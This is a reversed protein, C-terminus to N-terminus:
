IDFVLADGGVISLSWDFLTQEATEPEIAAILQVQIAGTARVEAMLDGAAYKFEIPHNFVIAVRGETDTRAYVPLCETDDVQLETSDSLDIEGEPEM